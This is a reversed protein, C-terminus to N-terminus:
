RLRQFAQEASSPDTSLCFILVKDLTFYRANPITGPFVREVLAARRHCMELLADTDTNAFSVFVAVEFPTDPSSGLYLAAERVLGEYELTGDEKAYLSLLLESTLPKEEDYLAAESLYLSGPPVDPLAGIFERLTDKAGRDKKVGCSFLLAILLFVSIFRLKKM